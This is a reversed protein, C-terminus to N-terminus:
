DPAAHILRKSLLSGGLACFYLYGRREGFREILRELPAHPGRHILARLGRMAGVDGPPFVDLRGLGRLLVLAASWPGIGSLQTLAGLAEDTSMSLLKEETVAGAEVARALDRVTQAQRASLGCAQLPALRAGAIAQATPFARFHRADCELHQGFKAVLRGVIAVGADLSLQQFPVVRAFAEFLGAFRPPRMGRLALATNRFTREGQALRQLPAPDIDLGLMKRLVGAAARRAAASTNGAPITFRIDPRDIRGFDEVAVLALGQPLALVRLYQGHDWIDISNSPRRQLVRVTAELHFPARTALTSQATM